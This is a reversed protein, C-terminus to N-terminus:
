TSKNGGSFEGNGAAIRHGECLQCLFNCGPFTLMSSSRFRYCTTSNSVKCNEKFTVKGQYLRTCRQLVDYAKAPKCQLQYVRALQVLADADDFSSINEGRRRSVAPFQSHGYLTINRQM